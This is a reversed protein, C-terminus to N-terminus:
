GWGFKRNFDAVPMVEIMTIGLRWDDIERMAAAWAGARSRASTCGYVVQGAM